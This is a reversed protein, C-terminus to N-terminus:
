HDQEWQYDLCIWKAAGHHKHYIGKKELEIHERVPVEWTPCMKPYPNWVFPFIRQMDDQVADFCGSRIRFKEFHLITRIVAYTLYYIPKDVSKM